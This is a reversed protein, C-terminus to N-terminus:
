GITSIKRLVEHDKIEIKRGAVNIVNENKLEALSRVVNEESVASLEGLEKRTVKLEFSTSDYLQSLYLLSDAVKGRVQKQNHSILKTMISTISNDIATNLKLMFNRNGLYMKKVVEIDIHCTSCETLAEINYKNKASGFVAMLGIYNSPVLINLIISKKNLGDIYMKADGKILIIAHTVEDGQRAITEHKRYTLHVPTLEGAMDMERATLCLDCKLRCDDCCVNRNQRM